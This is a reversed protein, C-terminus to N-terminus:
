LDRKKCGEQKSYRLIIGNEECYRWLAQRDECTIMERKMMERQAVTVYNIDM